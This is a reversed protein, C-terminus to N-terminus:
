NLRAVFDGNGQPLLFVGVANALGQSQERLVSVSDRLRAVQRLNQGVIADIENVSGSVQVLREGQQQGARNIDLLAQGVDQVSQNLQSMLAGTQEVLSTGSYIQTVSGEILEKIERAASASRQALSRVESAVVAFGRGQEGARAAEVAANLALINTQFAISDIVGTIEAIKVSLANISRMTSVAKDMAQSGHGALESVQQARQSLQDAQQQNDAVTDSLQHLTSSAERIAQAQQMAGHHVDDTADFIQASAQDIAQVGASVLHVSRATEGLAGGLALAAPSRHRIGDPQLNICNQRGGLHTVMARLESAQLADRRLWEAIICLAISEAVVYAAHGLVRGMGPESFCYVGWGLEQLYNFSLHHLAIVLAAVVIVFWDRYCLLVALMVFIGFHLETVGAAQHIHLGCFVMTSIAVLTRTIRAGPRLFIFLTPILAAPLGAVLAPRYTAHWPTLALALVFLLWIVVLMIKDAQRYQLTLQQNVAEMASKTYMKQVNSM